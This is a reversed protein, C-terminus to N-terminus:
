VVGAEGTQVGVAGSGKWWWLSVRLPRQLGASVSPSPSSPWPLTRLQLRTDPPSNVYFVSSNAATSHVICPRLSFPLSIICILYSLSLLEVCGNFFTSFLSPTRPVVSLPSLLMSGSSGAPLEAGLCPVCVAPHPPSAGPLAPLAGSSRCSLPARIGDQCGM